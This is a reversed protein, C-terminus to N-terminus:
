RQHPQYQHNLESTETFGAAVTKNFNRPTITTGPAFFFARNKSEIKIVPCTSVNAAIFLCLSRWLATLEARDACGEGGQGGV